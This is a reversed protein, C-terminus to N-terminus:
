WVKDHSCYNYNIYIINGITQTVCKMKLSYFNTVLNQCITQKFWVKSRRKRDGINSSSTYVLSLAVHALKAFIHSLNLMPLALNVDDWNYVQAIPPIWIAFEFKPDIPWHTDSIPLSSDGMPNVYSSNVKDKFVIRKAGLTLNAQGIGNRFSLVM